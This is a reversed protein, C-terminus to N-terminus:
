FRFSAPTKPVLYQAYGSNVMRYLGNDYCGMHKTLFADVNQRTGEIIWQKHGKFFTRLKASVVLDEPDEGSDSEQDSMTIHDGVELGAAHDADEPVMMDQHLLVRVRGQPHRTVYAHSNTVTRGFAGAIRVPPKWLNPSHDWICGVNSALLNGLSLESNPASNGRIALFRGFEDAQFETTVRKYLDKQNPQLLALTPAFHSQAQCPSIDIMGTPFWNAVTEDKYLHLPIAWLQFKAATVMIHPAVIGLYYRLPLKDGKRVAAITRPESETDDLGMLAVHARVLKVVLSAPVWLEGDVAHGDEEPLHMVFPQTDKWDCGTALEWTVSRTPRVKKDTGAESPGSIQSADRKSPEM